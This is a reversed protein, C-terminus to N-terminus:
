SRDGELNTICDLNALVRITVELIDVANRISMLMALANSHLLLLLGIMLCTEEIHGTSAETSTCRYM